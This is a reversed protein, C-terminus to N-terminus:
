LYIRCLGHSRVSCVFCTNIIKKACDQCFTHGCPLIAVGVERVFCVPCPNLVDDNPDPGRRPVLQDRILKLVPTGKCYMENWYRRKDRADAEGLKAIYRESNANIMQTIANADDLDLQLQSLHALTKNAAEYHLDKDRTIKALVGEAAKLNREVAYFANCFGTVDIQMFDDPVQEPEPRLQDTGPLLPTSRAQLERELAANTDNTDHQVTRQGTNNSDLDQIAWQAVATSTDLDQISMYSM